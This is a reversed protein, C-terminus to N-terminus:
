DLGVGEEDDYWIPQDSDEPKPWEEEPWDDNKDEELPESAKKQKEIRELIVDDHFEKVQAKLVKAYSIGILSPYKKNFSDIINWFLVVPKGDMHVNEPNFFIENLKKIALEMSNEDVDIGNFLYEALATEADKYGKMVKQKLRQVTIMEMVKAYFTIDFAKKLDYERRAVEDMEHTYVTSM